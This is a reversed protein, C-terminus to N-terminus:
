EDGFGFQCKFCPTSLGGAIKTLVDNERDLSLEGAWSARVIGSGDALILTPTVPVSLNARDLERVDAIDLGLSKLYQRADNPNQPLLAVVHPSGQDASQAVLRKYFPASHACFPCDKRLVVLLTRGNRSWDIGPLSLHIGVPVSAPMVGKTGSFFFEKVVTVALLAGVVIIALGAAFEIKKVLPRMLQKQQKNTWHRGNSSTHHRYSYRGKNHSQGRPWALSM